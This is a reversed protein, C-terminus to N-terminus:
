KRQETRPQLGPLVTCIVSFSIRTRQMLARSIKRECGIKSSNSAGNFIQPIKRTKNLNQNFKAELRYERDICRGKAAKQIHLNEAQLSNNIKPHNHPYLFASSPPKNKLYIPGIKSFKLRNTQQQGVLDFVRFIEKQQSAVM